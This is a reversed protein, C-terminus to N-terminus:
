RLLQQGFSPCATCVDAKIQVRLENTEIVLKACLRVVAASGVHEIENVLWPSLM